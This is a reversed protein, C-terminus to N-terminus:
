KLSMIHLLDSNVNFYSCVVQNQLPREFAMASLPYCVSFNYLFSQGEKSITLDKGGKFVSSITQIGKGLLLNQYSLKNDEKPRKEFLAYSGM